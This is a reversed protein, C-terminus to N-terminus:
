QPRLRTSSGIVVIRGDDTIGLDSYELAIYRRALIKAREKFEKTLTREDDIKRLVEVEETVIGYKSAAYIHPRDEIYLATLKRERDNSDASGVKLVIGLKLDPNPHIVSMVERHRGRGVVNFRYGTKHYVGTIIRTLAAPLVDVGPQCDLAEVIRKAALKREIELLETM